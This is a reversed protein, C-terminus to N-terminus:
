LIIAKKNITQFPKEAIYKTDSDELLNEIDSGSESEIKDFIAFTENSGTECDIHIYMKRNNKEITFHKHFGRDKVYVSKLSYSFNWNKKKKKNYEGHSGHAIRFCYFSLNSINLISFFAHISTM